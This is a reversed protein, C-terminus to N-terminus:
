DKFNFRFPMLLQQVLSLDVAVGLLQPLDAGDRYTGHLQDWLKFNAGFNCNDIGGGHHWHHDQPLNLWPSLCWLGWRGTVVFRSHRWLDLGSTLSMGVLYWQPDDLLYVLLGNVWLYVILLSSWLTNRSTGLVDMATVSHHVQHMPWLGVTHLLRHNWYYLYDVAVFNLGFALYGPLHWIGRLEPVFWEYLRAVVLVQLIPILVGQVVLGLLDLVWAEFSKQRLQTLGRDGWFTAIILVAFVPFVLM